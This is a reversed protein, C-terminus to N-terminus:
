ATAGIPDLHQASTVFSDRNRAAKRRLTEASSRLSRALPTTDWSPNDSRWTSPRLASKEGERFIGHSLLYAAAPDWAISAHIPLGTSDALESGTYPDDKGILLLGASRGRQGSADIAAALGAARSICAAASPLDTRTALLVQDAGMLLQLPTDPGLRGADIIVDTGTEQDLAACAQSLPEWLSHLAGAQAPDSVGAIFGTRGPFRNVSGAKLYERIPDTLNMTAAAMAEHLQGSRQAMALNLLGRDHTRRGGYLGALIPSGVSTDAEILLVPRPWTLALGIAAVSAGPSCHSSVVASVSM